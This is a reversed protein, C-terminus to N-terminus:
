RMRKERVKKVIISLLFLGGAVVAITAGTPLNYWVSVLLGGMVSAISVVPTYVFLHKLSRAHVSVVLPPIVLFANILVVGVLRVGAVVTLALFFHYVVEYLAVKVGLLRAQDEDISVLLLQPAMRPLVVTVVAALGVLLWLDSATVALLNGFLFSLLSPQYGPLLSFLIVGAGMSVPLLLALLSNFSFGTSKKLWPLFLSLVVSYVAASFVPNVGAYLGLAVGALASHAIADGFFTAKRITTFVGIIGALLALLFGALLARQFFVFSLLEVVETFLVNM